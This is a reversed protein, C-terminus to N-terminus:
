RNADSFKLHRWACEAPKYRLVINVIDGSISSNSKEELTLLLNNIGYGASNILGIYSLRRSHRTGNSVAEAVKQAHEGTPDLVRALEDHLQHFQTLDLMPFAPGKAPRMQRILRKLEAHLEDESMDGLAPDHTTSGMESFMSDLQEFKTEDMTEWLAGSEEQDNTEEDLLDEARTTSMLFLLSAALLLLMWLSRM